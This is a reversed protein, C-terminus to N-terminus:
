TSTVRGERDCYLHIFNQVRVQMFARTCVDRQAADRSQEELDYFRLEEEFDWTRVTMRKWFEALDERHTKGVM